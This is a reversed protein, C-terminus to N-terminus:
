IAMIMQNKPTSLNPPNNLPEIPEPIFPIEEMSPIKNLKVIENDNQDKKDNKNNKKEDCSTITNNSLKVDNNELENDISIVEEKENNINNRVKKIDIEHNEKELSKKSITLRVPSNKQEEKLPIDPLDAKQAIEKRNPSDLQYSQKQGM